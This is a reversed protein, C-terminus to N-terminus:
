KFLPGDLVQERVARRIKNTCKLGFRIAAMAPSVGEYPLSARSSWITRWIPWTHGQQGASFAAQWAAANQHPFWSTALLEDFMYLGQAVWRRNRSACRKRAMGACADKGMSSVAEDHRRFQVLADDVYVIGRGASARIALWWDHYLQAPFPLASEFVERRVLMAHGSVTNHLAIRLADRGAHMPGVDDSAKRGLLRGNADIYASDCYALDADGIAEVLRALKRPAWVDDQDCPAILPAACRRMCAEFSRLHGLNEANEHVTIRRDRAAYARLLALSGDTSRDDVAVIDLDVGEQALLSDLQAALYREGNFVCLAVSVRPLVARDVTPPALELAGTRDTPFAASGSPM